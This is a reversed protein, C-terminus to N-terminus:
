MVQFALNPPISTASSIGHRRCLKATKAGADQEKAFPGTWVHCWGAMPKPRAESLCRDRRSGATRKPHAQLFESDANYRCTV